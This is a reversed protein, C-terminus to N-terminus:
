KTSQTTIENTPKTATDVKADAEKSQNGNNIQEGDAIFGTQTMQNRVRTGEPWKMEFTSSPIDMKAKFNSITVRTLVVKSADFEPSQGSQSKVPELFKHIEIAKPLWVGNSEQVEPVVTEDRLLDDGSYTREERRRLLFNHEVDIWYLIKADQLFSIEIKMCRSGYMVEEGQYAAKFEPRLLRQDIPEGGLRDFYCYYRPDSLQLIDVLGNKMLENSPRIYGYSYYGSEDNPKNSQGKNRDYQDLVYCDNGNVVIRRFRLIGISKPDARDEIAINPSEYSFTSSSIVDRKDMPMKLLKEQQEPSWPIRSNLAMQKQREYYLKPTVLQYKLTAQVRPFQTRAAQIGAIVFRVESSPVLQAKVSETHLM